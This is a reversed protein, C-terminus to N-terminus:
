EIPCLVDPSPVLVPAEKAGGRSDPTSRVTVSYTVVGGNSPFPLTSVVVLLTIRDNTGLLLCTPRPVPLPCSSSPLPSSRM